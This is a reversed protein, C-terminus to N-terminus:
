SLVKPSRICTRGFRGFESGFDKYYLGIQEIFFNLLIFSSFSYISVVAERGDFVDHYQISDRSKTGVLMSEKFADAVKSLLAPYILFDNTLSLSPSTPSDFSFSHSRENKEKRKKRSLSMHHVSEASKRLPLTLTTSSNVWLHDM